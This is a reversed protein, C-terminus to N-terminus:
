QTTYGGDVVLNTGTIWRAADALLFAVPGAVDQPQGIGLPHRAKIKALQEPTYEQNLSDTMPTEVISPSVCNVRINERALEMALSKTLSIIAGKSASYASIGAEGVIGAVSAALVISCPNGRVAKHRIAKALGFASNVNIQFVDNIIQNGTIKLPRSVHVGAMHVLGNLVGYQDALSRMWDPIADVNTLDFPVAAHEKGQLESLTQALRTEDRGTAIVRGGLQSIMVACAKGIGSSAGTVLITKDNFQFLDPM